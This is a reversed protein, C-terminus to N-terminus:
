DEKKKGVIAMGCAATLALVAFTASVTSGCGGEVVDDNDDTTDTTGNNTSGATTSDEDTEADTADDGPM